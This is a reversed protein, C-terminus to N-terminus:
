EGEDKVRLLDLETVTVWEIGRPPTVITVIDSYNDEGDAEVKTFDVESKVLHNFRWFGHTDYTFAIADGTSILVTGGGDMVNWEEEKIKEGRENYIRAHILDDSYGQLQLKM